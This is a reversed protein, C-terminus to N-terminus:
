LEPWKGIKRRTYDKMGATEKESLPNLTILFERVKVVHAHTEGAGLTSEIGADDLQKRSLIKAYESFRSSSKSIWLKKQESSQFIRLM